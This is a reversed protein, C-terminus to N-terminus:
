HVQSVESGMCMVLCKPASEMAPVMHLEICQEYGLMQVLGRTNAEVVQINVLCGSCCERAFMQQVWYQVVRPILRLSKPAVVLLAGLLLPELKLQVVWPPCVDLVPSILTLM